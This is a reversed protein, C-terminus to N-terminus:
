VKLRFGSTSDFLSLREPSFTLFAKGGPHIDEDPRSMGKFKADGWEVDVWNVPGAPEVVSVAVETGNERRVGEILSDEPRIGIFLENTGSPVSVPLSLAVGHCDVVLPKPQQVSCRLINMAPSGIFGAVFTNAPNRYVEGPTDCQQIGGEGLVAIRDSLSMAEAQDHTVYVTTIGLERHLKKLESRMEIRLRADLNSLPEDMLFVKPKRIIARGLAVRQRQGGSLEKPKKELLGSLGLLGAVRLVEAEIVEKREKRMVLPFAINGRVTMHPYLAYSQFVMAVDRETPSLRNVRRENFFILGDTPADLGAIMNLITSKGCGSPGVFTFFEGEEITLNLGKIVAAAGFTKAINEFRIRTM